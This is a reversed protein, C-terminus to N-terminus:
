PLEKAGRVMKFVLELEPHFMVLYLLNCGIWLVGWQVLCLWFTKPRSARPYYLKGRWSTLGGHRWASTIGLVYSVNYTAFLCQLWQLLPEKGWIWAAVVQAFWVVMSLHFVPDRPLNKFEVKTM